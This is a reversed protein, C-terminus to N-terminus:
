SKRKVSTVLLILLLVLALGFWQAAYGHHRQIWRDEYGPWDRVLSKDQDANADLQMVLKHVPYGAVSEFRELDLNQWVTQFAENSSTNEFSIAHQAPKFLRGQVTIEQNPTDVRPLLRRDPGWPLWGRNILLVTGSGSLVLPTLVHYGARGQHVKNDLLIQLEEIYRGTAVARRFAMNQGLAEASVTIVPLQEQALYHDRIRIKEQARNLQWIGLSIFVLSLTVTLLFKLWSTKVKVAAVKLAAKQYWTSDLLPSSAINNLTIIMSKKIAM